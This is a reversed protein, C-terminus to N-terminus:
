KRGYNRGPTDRRSPEASGERSMGLHAEVATRIVQARSVELRRAEEFVADALRESLYLKEVHTTKSEM